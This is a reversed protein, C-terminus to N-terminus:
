FEDAEFRDIRHVAVDCWDPFQAVDGLRECRHGVEVLHMRDPKVPRAAGADGLPIAYQASRGHDLASKGLRETDHAALDGARGGKDIVYAAVGGAENKRGGQRRRQYGAGGCCDAVQLGALGLSVPQMLTRCRYLEPENGGTQRYHRRWAVNDRQQDAVRHAALRHGIRQQVSM